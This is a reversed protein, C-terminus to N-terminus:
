FLHSAFREDQKRLLYKYVIHIINEQKDQYHLELKYPFM